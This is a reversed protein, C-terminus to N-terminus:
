SNPRVEDTAGIWLHGWKGQAPGENKMSIWYNIAPQDVIALDGGESQCVQRADNWNKKDTHISFARGDIVDYAEIDQWSESIM